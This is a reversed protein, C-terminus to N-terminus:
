EGLIDADPPRSKKISQLSANFGATFGEGFMDGELTHDNYGRAHLCTSASTRNGSQDGDHVGQEFVACVHCDATRRTKLYLATGVEYTPGAKGLPMPPPRLGRHYLRCRWPGDAAPFEGISLIRNYNGAEIPFPLAGFFARFFMTRAPGGIRYGRDTAVVDPYSYHGGVRIFHAYSFGMEYARCLRCRKTRCRKLDHHQVTPYEPQKPNAM